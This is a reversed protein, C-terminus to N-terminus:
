KYMKNTRSLGYLYLTGYFDDLICVDQKYPKIISM